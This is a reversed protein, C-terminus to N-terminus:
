GLCFLLVGSGFVGLELLFFIHNLVYIFKSSMIRIPWPAVCLHSSMIYAGTNSIKYSFVVECKQPYLVFRAYGVTLLTPSSMNGAGPLSLVPTIELAIGEQFLPLTSTKDLSGWMSECPCTLSLMSLKVDCNLFGSYVYKTELWPACTYFIITISCSHRQGVEALDIARGSFLLWTQLHM